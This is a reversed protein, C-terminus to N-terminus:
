QEERQLYVGVRPNGVADEKHYGTLCLRPFYPNSMSWSQNISKGSSDRYLLGAQPHQERQGEGTGLGGNVLKQASYM